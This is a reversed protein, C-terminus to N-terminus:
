IDQKKNLQKEKIKVQELDELCYMQWNSIPYTRVPHKKRKALRHIYQPSITRGHTKSLFSAADQAAVYYLLEDGSDDLFINM